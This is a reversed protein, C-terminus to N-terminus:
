DGYVYPRFKYVFYVAVSSPINANTVSVGGTPNNTDLGTAPATTADRYALWGNDVDTSSSGALNNLGTDITGSIAPTVLAETEEIYYADQFDHDHDPIPHTHNPIISNNSGYTTGISAAVTGKNILFKDRYDPMVYDTGLYNITRGDAIGWCAALSATSTVQKITGVPSNRNEVAEVYSILQADTAVVDGAWPQWGNSTPASGNPNYTNGDVTNRYASAGSDLQLIAGVPYGSVATSLASNWRAQGGGIFFRIWQTILKLIGNVDKGDPPIGAPLPTMCEDPFGNVMSAKGLTSTTNPITNASGANAFPITVVAPRNLSSAM